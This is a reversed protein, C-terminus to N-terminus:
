SNVPNMIAISLGPSSEFKSRRGNLVTPRLRRSTGVPDRLCFAGYRKRWLDGIRAERELIPRTEYFNLRAALELGAQGSGIFIMAPQQDLDKCERERRRQETWTGIEFM